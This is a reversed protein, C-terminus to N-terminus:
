AKLERAFRRGLWGFLVLVGPLTGGIPPLPAPGVFGDPTALYGVM